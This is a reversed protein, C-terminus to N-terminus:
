RSVFLIRLSAIGRGASSSGHFPEGARIGHHEVQLARRDRHVRELDHHEVGELAAARDRQGLQAPRDLGVEPQDRPGGLPHPRHGAAAAAGVPDVVGAEVEVGVQVLRRQPRGGPRGEVLQAGPQRLPVEVAVPRQPRHRQDVAELVAVLGHDHPQVV